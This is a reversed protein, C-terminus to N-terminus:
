GNAVGRVVALAILALAAGAIWLLFLGDSTVDQSSRGQGGKVGHTKM